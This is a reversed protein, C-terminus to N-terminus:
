YISSCAEDRQVWLAVDGFDSSSWLISRATATASNQITKADAYYVLTFRVVCTQLM